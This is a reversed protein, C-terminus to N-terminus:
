PSCPADALFRKMARWGETVSPAGPDDPSQPWLGQQTKIQSPTLHWSLPEPMGGAPRIEATAVLADVQHERFRVNWSDIFRQLDIANRSLAIGGQTGLVGFLPGALAAFAGDTPPTPASPAAFPTLQLIFIRRVPIKGRLRAELVPQLWDLASTVGFNDFYGGDILHYRRQVAEPSSMDPPAEDGVNDVEEFRASAAPSVYPFTASMRAATWIDVDAAEGEASLLESLTAARDRIARPAFDLPTIMMRRGTEMVTSAFIVSPLRGDRIAPRLAGMSLDLDDAIRGWNNELLLGRDWRELPPLADGLFLRWFDLFAFGYAASGLSSAVSNQYIEELLEEREAPDLTVLDPQERVGQAYFAAGVSSGSVTSLLRIEDALCPRDKIMRQLGLTTWGSALIGGGSSAIVVLTEPRRSNQVVAVPTLPPEDLATHRARYYHDVDQPLYVVLFILLLVVLPSVHIPTLNHALGNVTWVLLVLLIYLFLVAPPHPEVGRPPFYVWGVVLFIVLLGLLCTLAFFHAAALRPHGGDTAMAARVRLLRVPVSLLNRLGGFVKGLAPRDVLPSLLDGLRSDVLFRFGPEAWRAPLALLHLLLYAVLFGAVLALVRWGWDKTAFLGIWLCGWVGLASFVWFPGREVPLGFFAVAKAPIELPTGDVLLGSTIMLAWAAAFFGAAGWFLAWPPLEVFLGGLLSSGPVKALSTLPLYLLIVVFVVSYKLVYLLNAWRRLTGEGM